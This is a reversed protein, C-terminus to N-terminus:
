RTRRGYPYSELKQRTPEYSELVRILMKRGEMPMQALKDKLIINRDEENVLPIHKPDTAGIYPIVERRNFHRNTSNTSRRLNMEEPTKYLDSWGIGWQDMVAEAGTVPPNLGFKDMVSHLIEHYTTKKVDEPKASDYVNVDITGKPNGFMWSPLWDPPIYEGTSQNKSPVGYKKNYSIPTRTFRDYAKTGLFYGALKSIIDDQPM